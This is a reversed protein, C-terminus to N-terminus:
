VKNGKKIKTDFLTNLQELLGQGLDVYSSDILRKALKPRFNYPTIEYHEDYDQKTYKLEIENNLMEKIMILLDKIRISQQGTIMVYQNKFEESSVKVSLRAADHVHIYERIENGDGIRTIKKEVLAQKLIKNIWNSDDSRPGYLSGYRLITFDINYQKHYNEIIIECAQKSTRYFSGAESYVYVSSAFIFRKVNNIRCAELINTTGIINTCITQYPDDKAQNIDAIGAFHYVIDVGKTIEEVAKKDLIDGVIMEQSPKIYPSTRKDFVLVKHNNETLYDAVHSGLFGSGGFVIIKM